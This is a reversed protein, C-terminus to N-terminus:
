TASQKLLACLNPNITQAEALGRPVSAYIFLIIQANIIINILIDLVFTCSFLSDLYLSSQLVQLGPWAFVHVFFSLFCVNMCVNLLDTLNWLESSLTNFIGHMLISYQLEPFKITAQM